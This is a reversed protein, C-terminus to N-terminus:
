PAPFWERAAAFLHRDALVNLARRAQVFREAIAELLRAPAASPAEARAALRYWRAGLQELLGMGGRVELAEGLAEGSSPAVAAARGLRQLDIPRFARAATHDPFVGTLFLSLDGLRRHVFPHRSEPLADLTAALRIPDLESFRQRRWGRATERWVSGSAVRTYSALLTALFVRRRRDALLERLDDAGLLPVRLRPGVWEPVHTAERLEDAVREVAVAFTLFPSAPVLAERETDDDGGALLLRAAEPSALTRELLGPEARLLAHAAPADVEARGALRVILVLDGPGLHELYGAGGGRAAADGARM